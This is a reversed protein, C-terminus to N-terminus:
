FSHRVGLDVESDGAGFKTTTFRTNSLKAYAAYLSTRKSLAYNYAVAHQHADFTNAASRDDKRIYTAMVTHPGFPVSVGVLLDRSDITGLGKNIGYGLSAAAVGFDYKGVLLTNKARDTATANNTQHHALRVTLPGGSYGAALGTQRSRSSDGAVEGFGYAAQANLGNFTPTTYIVTNNMRTGAKEGSMLQGSAGGYNNGFPDAILLTQYIPTYQRGLTVTGAAGNLGVFAQRGFLLGGQDFAGTDALLGTELTFIASMGSGLDERGRFGIRSGTSVGSELKTASGAPAGRAFVLGTDVIGYITANSQAHATGAMAGISMLMWALTKNNM